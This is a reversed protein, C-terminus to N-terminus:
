YRLTGVKKEHKKLILAPWREGYCLMCAGVAIHAAAAAVAATIMVVVMVSVVVLGVGVFVTTAIVREM